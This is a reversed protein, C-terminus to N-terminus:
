ELFLVPIARSINKEFHSVIIYQRLIIRQHPADTAIMEANKTM